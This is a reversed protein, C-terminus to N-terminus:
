SQWVIEQNICLYTLTKTKHTHNIFFCVSSRCIYKCNWDYWKGWSSFGHECAVLHGKYLVVGHEHIISVDSWKLVLQTPLADLFNLERFLDSSHDYVELHSDIPCEEIKYM